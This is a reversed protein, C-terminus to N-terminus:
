PATESETGLWREIDATSDVACRLTPEDCWRALGGIAGIFALEGARLGVVRVANALVVDLCADGYFAEWCGLM